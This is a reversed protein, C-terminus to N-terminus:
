PAGNAKELDFADRHNGDIDVMRFNLRNGIIRVMCYHHGRYVTNMFWQRTPAANELNGGGGGTQVYVVGDERHAAGDKVAWTREYSHLHGFFVLDVGHREYLPLLNRPNGDGYASGEKWTDGYDDEDSTYVPHHHAAIKWLATSAGLEKELWAYQEGGPGLDQNSDLMFFQANGYQFTYYGKEDPQAHYRNYWYLDAEGNGPVPFIPVRGALQGVGAWYEHTWEFRYPEFGGDTLDGCNLAFHPREAWVAKAVADNIHPRAETDGIIAFAFPQDPRVATQFGLLGSSLPREPTDSEVEYFYATDPELGTLAVRHLRDAAGSEIVSELPTQRGFRVRGAAPRDTEWLIVASDTGTMQVAPGATFHPTGLLLIGNDAADRLTDFRKALEDATLARDWLRAEPVLNGLQMRPENTFYGLAGFAAYEGYQPTWEVSTRAAERGNVYIALSEGDYVGAIHRWRKKWPETDPAEVLARPDLDGKAHVAFAARGESYSLHWAPLQNPDGSLAGLVAGVAQNVHDLVWMEVTFPGAPLEDRSLLREHQETCWMARLVPASSRGPLLLPPEAPAPLGNFGPVNTASLPLSYVPAFNWAAILGPESVEVGARALLDGWTQACAAPAFLALILAYRFRM